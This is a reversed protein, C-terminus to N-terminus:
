QIVYFVLYPIDNHIQDETERDAKPCGNKIMTDYALSNQWYGILGDKFSGIIGFFPVGLYNIESKERDFVCYSWMDNLQISLAIYNNCLYPVRYNGGDSQNGSFKFSINEEIVGDTKNILCYGPQNYNGYVIYQGNSSLYHRTSFADMETETYPFYNQKINLNSDTVFVRYRLNADHQGAVMPSYAFVFGGNNLVEFDWSPVPTKLTKQYDLTRADYVVISNQFQDMIYLHHENAVFSQIALYEGPGRGHKDLIGQM